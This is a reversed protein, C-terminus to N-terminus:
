LDSELNNRAFELIYDDKDLIGEDEIERIIKELLEDSDCVADLVKVFYESKKPGTRKEYEEKIDYIDNKLREINRM